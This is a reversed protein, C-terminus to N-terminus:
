NIDLERLMAHRLYGARTWEQYQVTAIIKPKLWVFRGLENASIGASWSDGSRKRPVNIFAPSSSALPALRKLAEAKASKPLYAELKGAYHFEGGRRFGVAILSFGDGSPLFGGVISSGEQRTKFKVWSACREGPRYISDRKKAVIGELRHERCFSVLADVKSELSASLRLCPASGNLVATLREKRTTLPLSRLSEGNLHLLDFAYFYLAHEGESYNQLDEFCPRGDADLCVIEGDLICEKERLSRVAHVIPLFRATLDKGNRSYLRTSTRNKVALGRYGDFKLEYLWQEGVPLVKSPQLLMPTIFAPIAL